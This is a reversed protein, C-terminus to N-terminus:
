QYKTLEIGPNAPIKYKFRDKSDRPDDFYTYENTVNLM